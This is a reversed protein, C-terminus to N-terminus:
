HGVAGTKQEVQIDASGAESQYLGMGSELDMRRKILLARNSLLSSIDPAARSTPRKDTQYVPSPTRYSNQHLLDPFIPRALLGIDGLQQARFTVKRKIVLILNAYVAGRALHNTFLAATIKQQLATPNLSTVIHAGDSVKEPQYSTAKPSVCVPIFKSTPLV